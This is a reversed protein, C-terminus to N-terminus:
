VINWLMQYQNPIDNMCTKQNEVLRQTKTFGRQHEKCAGINFIGIQFFFSTSIQQFAKNGEM